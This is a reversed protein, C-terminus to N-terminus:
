LQGEKHQKELLDANAHEWAQYAAASLFAGNTKLFHHVLSHRVGILDEFMQRRLQQIRADIEAKFQKFFSLDAPGFVTPYQQLYEFFADFLQSRKTLTEISARQEQFTKSDKHLVIQPSSQLPSPQADLMTANFEDLVDEDCMDAVQEKTKHKMEVLAERLEAISCENAM